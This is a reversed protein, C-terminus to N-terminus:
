INLSFINNSYKNKDNVPFLCTIQNISNILSDAGM